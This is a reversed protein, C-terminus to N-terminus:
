PCAGAPGAYDYPFARTGTVVERTASCAGLGRSLFWGDLFDVLDVGSVGVSRLTATSLYDVEVRLVAAHGASTMPDDDDGGSDGLDWLDEAVMNESVDQSMGGSASAWTVSSDGDWGWGGYSNSDMYVSDGRMAMAWYTSFGESWALRPDTATGDHNGGPNDSRGQTDEVYHGSEHLIVTDDYGDDDSSAGLLWISTSWPDYYTGQNSGRSWIASLARPTPDGLVEGIADMVQVLQDFINFAESVASGDTVVLDQTVDDAATFTEGGFSHVQSQNRKVSIPRAPLASYAAVSVHLATGDDTDYSLTYSGDDSVIGAALESGGNDALVVVRAGRVPLTTLDGLAGSPLPPRDEYRVTGHVRRAGVEGPATCGYGAGDGLYTCIDGTAACDTDVPEGTTCRTLLDGACRGQPGVADCPDAVCAAVGGDPQVCETGNPCPEFDVAHKGGVVVCREIGDDSCDGESTVGAEECADVCSAGDSDEVCSAFAAACDEEVLQAGDCHRLTDGSCEGAPAVGCNIADVGTGADGDGARPGDGCGAVLALALAGALRAGPATM